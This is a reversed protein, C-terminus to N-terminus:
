KLNAALAYGANKTAQLFSVKPKLAHMHSYNINRHHPHQHDAKAAATREDEAWTIHHDLLKHDASAAAHKHQRAQFRRLAKLKFTSPIPPL